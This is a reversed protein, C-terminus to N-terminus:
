ILLQEKIDAYYKEIDEKVEKRIKKYQPKKFEEQTFNKVMKLNLISEVIDKDKRKNKIAVQILDLINKTENNEEEEFLKIVEKVLGNNSYKTGVLLIDMIPLDINGITERFINLGIKNDSQILKSYIFLLLEQNNKFNNAKEETILMEKLIQQFEKNNHTLATVPLLIPAIMNKIQYKKANEYQNTLLCLAVVLTNTFNKDRVEDKFTFTEEKLIFNLIIQLEKNQKEEVFSYEELLFQFLSKIIMNNHVSINMNPQSKYKKIFETSNYNIINNILSNIIIEPM